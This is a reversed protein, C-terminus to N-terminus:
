DKVREEIWNNFTKGTTNTNTLDVAYASVTRNPQGGLAPYTDDPGWRVIVPNTGLQERAWEFSSEAYKFDPFRSYDVFVAAMTYLGMLAPYYYQAKSTQNPNWGARKAQREYWGSIDSTPVNKVSPNTDSKRLREWFEDLTVGFKTQLRCFQATPPPNGTVLKPRITQFGPDALAFTPRVMAGKKANTTNATDQRYTVISPQLGILSATQSFDVTGRSTWALYEALVAPCSSSNDPNFPGTGGFDGAVLRKLARILRSDTRNNGIVETAKEPSTYQIESM